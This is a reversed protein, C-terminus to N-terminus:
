DNLGWIDKVIKIDDFPHKIGNVEQYTEHGKGAILIIDGASAMDLGMTIATKRDVESLHQKTFGELIESIINEPKETRPNDSTVIIKDSLAEAVKAMLQRKSRDRDGGCGFVTILRAKPFSQKIGLCANKLADPTHAYDVIVKINNNEIIEFRGPPSELQSFEVELIGLENAISRCLNMNKRGFVTDLETRLKNFNHVEALIIYENTDKIKEYVDSDSVVLKANPKLYNIIKLKAALYNEMTKHYDLHDQTLNTWGACDLSIGEIRSQELAHSSVEMLCYDYNKQNEFIVRRLECQGPTTLGFDKIIKSNIRVGLTGITLVRYKKQQLIQELHYVCSTKGNTGTIGVFKKDPVPYFLSLLDTLITKFLEPSLFHVRKDECQIDRNIYIVKAKASGLRQLFAQIEKESKGLNYFVLEDDDSKNLQTSLHDIGLNKLNKFEEKANM